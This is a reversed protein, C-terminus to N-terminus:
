ALRPKINFHQIMTQLNGEFILKVGELKRIDNSFFFNTPKKIKTVKGRKLVEGVFQSCFFSYKRKFPIRCLSMVLGMNAYSMKHKNREFFGLIRKVTEYTRDSVEIEYLQCPFPKRGPKVYRTVDEVMFGKKVFTYFQNLDESLGISTHSYVAGTLAQIIKAGNDPFRTTLIYIKKNKFM